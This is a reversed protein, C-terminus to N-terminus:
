SGPPSSCTARASRVSTSSIHPPSSFYGAADPPGMRVWASESHPRSGDSAFPVAELDALPLPLAM